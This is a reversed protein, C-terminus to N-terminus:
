QLWADFLITRKIKDNNHHKDYYEWMEEESDAPICETRVVGSKYTTEVEYIYKYLKEEMEM